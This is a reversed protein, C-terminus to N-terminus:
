SVGRDGGEDDALFEAYADVSSDAPTAGQRWTWRRESLFRVPNPVYKNSQAAWIPLWRDLGALIEAPTAIVTAKAFERESALPDVQRPYKAWFIKWCADIPAPAYSDEKPEEQSSNPKPTPDPSVGHRIQHCGTDDNTVGGTAMPSVGGGSPTDSKTVGGTPDPSVRPDDASGAGYLPVVTSPMLLRFRTPKGPRQELVELLGADVLKSIAECARQRTVRAKVALKSQRMWLENDNQDNVSDAISLHVAFDAGRMPSHRFTWGVADSSM